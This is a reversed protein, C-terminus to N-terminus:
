PGRAGVYPAMRSGVLINSYTPSRGPVNEMTSRGIGATIVKGMGSAHFGNETGPNLGGTTGGPTVGIQGSGTRSPFGPRALGDDNARGWGATVHAPGCLGGVGSTARPDLALSMQGATLVVTGVVALLLSTRRM